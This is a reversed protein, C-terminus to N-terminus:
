DENEYVFGGQCLLKRLQERGRKLKTRVTAPNMQMAEAIEVSSQCLDYHRYFIERDQPKLQRLAAQLQAAQERASLGQWLTDPAPLDADELPLTIRRQRLRDVTTNRAVAGLWPRMQGNRIKRADQWLALFVDSAIEEEDEPSLCGRSRNHIVTVVYGGYEGMAQELARQSGRLLRKLLKGEDMANGGNEDASMKM